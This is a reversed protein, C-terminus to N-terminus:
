TCLLLWFLFFLRPLEDWFNSQSKQIPKWQGPAFQLFQLRKRPNTGWPSALWKKSFFDILESVTGDNIKRSIWFIISHNQNISKWSTFLDFIWSSLRNCLDPHQSMCNMPAKAAFQGCTSPSFDFDMNRPNGSTSHSTFVLQSKENLSYFQCVDTKCTIQDGCKPSKRLM